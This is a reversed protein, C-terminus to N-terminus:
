QSVSSSLALPLVPLLLCFMWGFSFSLSLTHPLLFLFLTLQHQQLPALGQPRLRLWMEM